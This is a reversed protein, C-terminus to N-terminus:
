FSIKKCFSGSSWGQCQKWRVKAGPKKLKGSKRREEARGEVAREELKRELKLEQTQTL